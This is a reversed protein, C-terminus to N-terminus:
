FNFNQGLDFVWVGDNYGYYKKSDFIIFSDSKENDIKFIISDLNYSGYPGCSGFDHKEEDWIGINGRNLM